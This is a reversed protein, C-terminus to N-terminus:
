KCLLGLTYSDVNGAVVNDEDIDIVYKRARWWVM